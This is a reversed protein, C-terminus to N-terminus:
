CQRNEETKPAGASIEGLERIEAAQKGAPTQPYRNESFRAYSSDMSFNHSVPAEDARVGAEMSSRLRLGRWIRRKDHGSEGTTYGRRKLHDALLNRALRPVGNRSAWVQYISWLQASEVSAGSDLECCDELFPVLVDSEDQYERTAEEVVRPVGLGEKQWALCGQIAWNL